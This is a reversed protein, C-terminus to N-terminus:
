VLSDDQEVTQFVVNLQQEGAKEAPQQQQKVGHDHRPDGQSHHHLPAGDPYGEGPQCENIGDGEGPDTEIHQKPLYPETAFPCFAGLGHVARVGDPDALEGAEEGLVAALHAALRAREMIQDLPPQGHGHERAVPHRQQVPGLGDQLLSHAVDAAGGLGAVQLEVAPMGTPIHIRHALGKDLHRRAAHITTHQEVGDAALGKEAGTPWFRQARGPDLHHLHQRDTGPTDRELALVQAHVALQHHYIVPDTVGAGHVHHIGAEELLIGTDTLPDVDHDPYLPWHHGQHPGSEDPVPLHLGALPQEVAQLM